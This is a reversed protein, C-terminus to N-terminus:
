AAEESLVDIAESSLNAFNNCNKGDTRVLNEAAADLVPNSLVAENTPSHPAASASKDCISLADECAEPSPDVREQDAAFTTAPSFQMRGSKKSGTTVLPIYDDSSELGSESELDSSSHSDSEDASSGTDSESEGDSDDSALDDGEKMWVMMKKMRFSCNFVDRRSWFYDESLLRVADEERHTEAVEALECLSKSQQLRSVCIPGSAAVLKRHLENEFATMSAVGAASESFGSLVSGQVPDSEEEADTTLHHSTVAQEQTSPLPLGVPVTSQSLPNSINQSSETSFAQQVQSNVITPTALQKGLPSLEGPLGGLQSPHAVGVPLTSQECQQNVFPERHAHNELQDQPAVCTPGDPDPPSVLSLVALGQRKSCKFLGPMTKFFKIDFLGRPGGMGQADKALRRMEGDVALQVLKIPQPRAAIFHKAGEIFRALVADHRWRPQVCAEAAQKFRHHDETLTLVSVSGYSTCTFVEPLSRLYRLSLVKVNHMKGVRAMKALRVLTKDNCVAICNVPQHHRVFDIVARLFHQLRVPCSALRDERAAVLDECIGASAHGLDM